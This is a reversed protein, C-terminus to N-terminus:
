LLGLRSRRGIRGGEGGGAFTHQIFVRSRIAQYVCTMRTGPAKPLRACHRVQNQRGAAPRGMRTAIEQQGAAKKVEISFVVSPLTLLALVSLIKIENCFDPSYAAKIYFFIAESNRGCFPYRGAERSKRCKLLRITSGRSCVPLKGFGLGWMLGQCNLGSFKCENLQIPM